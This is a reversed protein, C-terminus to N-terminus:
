MKNIEVETINTWEFYVEHNNGDGTIKIFRAKKNITFKEYDLTEGNSKGNFVSVWNKEDDSISIHIFYYRQDGNYFALKIHAIEMTTGLDYQIWPKVGDIREGRWSSKGSKDGDLTLTPFFDGAGHEKTEWINSKVEIKNPSLKNGQAATNSYISTIILAVISSIIRLNM